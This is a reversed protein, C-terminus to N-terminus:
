LAREWDQDVVAQGFAEGPRSSVLTWGNRAYLACAARHSEHTWLVMRRYGAARAFGQCAELLRQGVGQGRASPEVLFLRLRAVGDAERMCFISGLRTGAAEAIWGRECGPDRRTLFEALITAVLAEFRADYGEDRAYLAGHRGIVWGADGPALDRLEVPGGEILRMARELTAPLADRGGAPLTDLLNGVAARSAAELPVMAAAGEATLALTKVRRDSADSDRALWGRREFGALCRSVYGEDLGLGRALARATQGPHHRLEYLLRVEALTLGSDLYSRGLLGLRRTYYRNFARLRDIRDM